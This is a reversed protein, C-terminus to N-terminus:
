REFSYIRIVASHRGGIWLDNKDDVALSLPEFGDSFLLGRAVFEQERELICLAGDWNAVIVNGSKDFCLGKPVFTHAFIEKGDFRLIENGSSTFVVIEKTIYDGVAVEGHVSVDVYIPYQFPKSLGQLKKLLAGDTNYFFTGYEKSVDYTVSDNRGVGVAIIENQPSIAIEAPFMGSTSTFRSIRGSKTVRIVCKDNFCALYLNGDEDACADTVSRRIKTVNHLLHGSRNYLAVSSNQIVVWAKENTVPSISNVCGKHRKCTFEKQFKMKIESLEVKLFPSPKKVTKTSLNMKAGGVIMSKSRDFKTAAPKDLKREKIQTIETKGRSFLKGGTPKSTSSANSRSSSYDDRYSGESKSDDKADEKSDKATTEGGDTETACTEAGINEIEIAVNDKSTKDEETDGNFMIEKRDGDERGEAQDKEEKATGEESGVTAESHETSTAEDEKAEKRPLVITEFNLMNSCRPCYYHKGDDYCSMAMFQVKCETCLGQEQPARTWTRRLVYEDPQQRASIGITTKQRGDM